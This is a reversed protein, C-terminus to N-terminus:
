FNFAAVRSSNNKCMELSFRLFTLIDMASPIKKEKLTILWLNHRSYPILRHVM